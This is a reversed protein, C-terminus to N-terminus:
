LRVQPHFALIRVIHYHSESAANILDAFRGDVPENKGLRGDGGDGDKKAARRGPGVFTDVTKKKGPAAAPEAEAHEHHRRRCRCRKRVAPQPTPAPPHSAHLPTVCWTSNTCG